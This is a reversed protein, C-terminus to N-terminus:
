IAEKCARCTVRDSYVDLSACVSQGAETTAMRSSLDYSSAIIGCGTRARHTTVVIWHVVPAAVDISPGAVVDGARYRTSGCWFRLRRKSLRWGGVLGNRFVSRVLDPKSHKERM